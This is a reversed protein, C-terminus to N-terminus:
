FNKNLDMGAYLSAVQDAFGNFMLTKRQHFEGLRRERSQSWEQTSVDPNVNAYFGYWTPMEMPWSTRPQKDVFKINVISKIGKFGYKWPVILRIPAGDQNPLTEGYLGIAMITLPHMAEDMRLGERYPWTLLPQPFRIRQGPLEKPRYVSTFQVFKAQPKPDFRKLLDGLPFGDWPIVMSWAEVCRLPYVREEVPHPKIIDEFAYTGPKNCLGEVKISWPHPHFDRAYRAPDSKQSGFEYFNNYTTINKLSNIPDNTTVMRKTITLKDGASAETADGLLGAFAAAATLGAAQLFERRKLYVSKPTIESSRFRPPDKILMDRGYDAHGEQGRPM